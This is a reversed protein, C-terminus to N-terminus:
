KSTVFVASLQSIQLDSDLFTVLYSTASGMSVSLNIESVWNSKWNLYLVARWQGQGQQGKNIVRRKSTFYWWSTVCTASKEAPCWRGPEETVKWLARQTIPPGALSTNVTNCMRKMWLMAPTWVTNEGAAREQRITAMAVTTVVMVPREVEAMAVLPNTLPPICLKIWWVQRRLLIECVCSATWWM